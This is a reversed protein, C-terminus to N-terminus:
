QSMRGQIINDFHHILARFNALLFFKGFSHAKIVAAEHRKARESIRQSLTREHFEKLEKKANEYQLLSVFFHIGTFEIIFLSM